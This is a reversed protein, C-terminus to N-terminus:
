TEGSDVDGVEALESEEADIGEEGVFRTAVVEADKGYERLWRVLVASYGHTAWVTDAGTADIAGLLGPWDAHDSLIFGRDVARRRRTGRIAMWGSAFASSSPSFKRSWPTGHASPPAIVIGRAWASRNSAHGAYQTPPLPVGGERYATNLKEVAGHCFIPGISPDLGSLLRQAKGLAYAYLLCVKGEDANKRWWANIADFVESQDPWRYIPLGFTSETIFVHCRVPDFVSCTADPGVKYDGSVVWVHGKHEVRVQSSGLIHGAPHLSVRVGNIETSQGYDLADIIPEDGVRVRLVGAGERTTLYRQSGWRAHDAHAHTIVARDVPSWPDIFFDGAPCYLGARTLQLVAQSPNM